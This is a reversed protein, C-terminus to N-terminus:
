RQDGVAFYAKKLWDFFESFTVHSQVFGSIAAQVEPSVKSFSIGVYNEDSQRSACRVVYGVAALSSSEPLDFLLRLETGVQCINTTQLLMGGSSIDLLQADFAVVPAHVKVYTNHEVRLNDRGIIGFRTGLTDLLQEASLNPVVVTDCLGETVAWAFADHSGLILRFARLSVGRDLEMLADRASLAGFCSPHIICVSAKNASLFDRASDISPFEAVEFPFRHLFSPFRLLWESPIGFLIVWQVEQEELIESVERDERVEQTEEAARKLIEKQQDGTDTPLVQRQSGQAERLEEVLDDLLRRDEARLDIFEVGLGEPIGRVVADGASVRHVVRARARIERDVTPIELCLNVVSDPPPLIQTRVFLGGASINTTYERVLEGLTQFRVRYSQEARVTGRSKRVGESAVVQEFQKALETTRESQQAGLWLDSSSESLDQDAAQEAPPAALLSTVTNQFLSRRFPKRLLHATFREMLMGQLDAQGWTVSSLCLLECQGAWRERIARCLEFGDMGRLLLELVVLRPLGNEFSALADQADRFCVSTAHVRKLASALKQGIAVDHEVIAVDPAARTM